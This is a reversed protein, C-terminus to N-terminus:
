NFVEYLKDQLQLMVATNYAITVTPFYSLTLKCDVDIVYSFWVWGDINTRTLVRWRKNSLTYVPKSLPAFPVNSM